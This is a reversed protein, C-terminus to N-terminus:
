GCPQSPILEIQLEIHWKSIFKKVSFISCCLTHYVRDKRWFHKVNEIHIWCVNAQEYEVILVFSSYHQCNVIFVSFHRWQCREITKMRLRSCSECRLTKSWNSVKFLYNRALISSIMLLAKWFLISEEM